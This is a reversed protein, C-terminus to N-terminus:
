LKIRNYEEDSLKEMWVVIGKQPNTSIALHTLESDPTAGHWHMAGPPVKVIDGSEILEVPQGKLQHYGKGSTVLLIQGGPHVHWNNRAGPEFTVNGIPCNYLSDNEVLMQLWASGTFYENTIKEGKAFVATSTKNEAPQKKQTETNSCSAALLMVIIFGLYLLNQKKM